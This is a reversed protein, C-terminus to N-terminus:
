LVTDASVNMSGDPVSISVAAGSASARNRM